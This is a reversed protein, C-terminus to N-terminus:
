ILLQLLSIGWIITNQGTFLSVTTFYEGTFKSQANIGNIKISKVGSKDQATIYIEAKKDSIIPIDIDSNEKPIPHTVKIEPPFVDVIKAGDVVYSIRLAKPQAYLVKEWQGSKAKDENEAYVLHMDIKLEGGDFHPNAYFKIKIQKNSFESIKVNGLTNVADKPYVKLLQKNIALVSNEDNVPKLANNVWKIDLTVTFANEEFESTSVHILANKNNYTSVLLDYDEAKIFLTNILIFLIILKLNKM